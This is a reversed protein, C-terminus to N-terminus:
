LLLVCTVCIGPILSLGATLRILAAATYPLALVLLAAAGLIVVLNRKANRKVSLVGGSYYGLSLGAITSILVTAWVYLSSGYFPAVLKAGMLEVAMLAAGEIFVVLLYFWTKQMNM